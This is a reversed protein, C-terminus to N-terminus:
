GFHLSAEAKNLLKDYKAQAMVMAPSIWLLLIVVKWMSRIMPKTQKRLNKQIVVQINQFVSTLGSKFNKLFKFNCIRKATAV